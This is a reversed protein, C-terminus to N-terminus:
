VEYGYMAIMREVVLRMSRGQEQAIKKLMAHHRKSIYVQMEDSRDRKKEM